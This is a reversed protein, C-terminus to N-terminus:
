SEGGAAQAGDDEVVPLDEPSLPSTSPVLHSIDNLRIVRPMMGGLEVISVSANDFHFPHRRKRDLGLLYALYEGFLGAHSVIVIKADAHREAIARLTGAARSHFAYQKEGGPMDRAEEMWFQSLEPFQEVIEAYVQGTFLGLDHEKLQEDYHIPLGTAMAILEATQRARQLPSAYLVGIHEGRFRNALRAAQMLGRENLPPDAQGQVRGEANWTSEAHRVLYLRVALDV